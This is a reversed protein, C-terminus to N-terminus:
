TARRSCRPRRRCTRSPPHGVGLHVREDVVELPGDAGVEVAPAHVLRHRDPLGDAVLGAHVGGLDVEGLHPPGPCPRTSGCARRRSSAGCGARARTRGRRRGGVSPAASWSMLMLPGPRACCANRAPSTSSTWRNTNGITTPPPLGPRGAADAEVELQDVLAPEPVADDVQVVAGRVSDTISTHLDPPHRRETVLGGRHRLAGRRRRRRGLPSRRPRAPDAGARRAITDILGAALFDRVVTPGGGIRVDLDGAAERALDLAEQPDADVFHFVTGGEMEISPRPHHTLVFVPTHFPPNPGWWGRWEDDTGVDTWPGTQAAFKGRGMIEAGVGVGHREAFSHDVGRHWRDRRGDLALVPHRCGNTCGNVPTVSRPKSRSATATGFGDLSIAFNHVRVQSMVASMSSVVAPDEGPRVGTQGCRAADDWGDDHVAPAGGRGTSRGRARHHDHWYLPAGAGSSMARRCMKELHESSGKLSRSGAPLSCRGGRRWPRRTWTRSSRPSRARRDRHVGHEDPHRDQQRRALQGRGSRARPHRRRGRHDRLRPGGRGALARGSAEVERRSLEALRRGPIPGDSPSPPVHRLGWRPEAFLAALTEQSQERTMLSRGCRRGGRWLDTM